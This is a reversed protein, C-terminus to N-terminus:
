AESKVYFTVPTWKSLNTCSGLAYSGISQVTSPIFVTYLKPCQFFAKEGISQVGEAMKVTVLYPAREFASKEISTVSSGIDVRTIKREDRFVYPIGSVGSLHAKFGELIMFQNTLAGTIDYEESEGDQFTFVTHSPDTAEAVKPVIVKAVNEEQIGWPYNPSNKVEKNTMMVFTVKFEPNISALANGDIQTTSGNITVQRVNPGVVGGGLMTVNSGVRIQAINNLMQVLRRSPQRTTPQEGEGADVALGHEVLWDLDLNGVIDYTLVTGDDLIFTTCRDKDSQQVLIRNAHLKRLILSSNGM